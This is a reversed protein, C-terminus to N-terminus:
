IKTMRSRDRTPQHTACPGRPDLTQQRALPALGALAVGRPPLTGSIAVGFAIDIKVPFTLLEADYGAWESVKDPLQHPQIVLSPNQGLERWRFARPGMNIEVLPQGRCLDRVSEM